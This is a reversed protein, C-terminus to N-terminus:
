CELLLSVSSKNVRRMNGAVSTKKPARAAEQTHRVVSCLVTVAEKNTIIFIKNLGRCNDLMRKSNDM